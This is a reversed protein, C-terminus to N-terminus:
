LPPHMHFPGFAMGGGFFGTANIMLVLFALFTYYLKSIGRQERMFAVIMTFIATGVGFWM